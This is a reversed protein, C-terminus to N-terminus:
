AVAEDDDLESVLVFAAFSGDGDGDGDGTGGGVGGAVSYEVSDGGGTVVVFFSM